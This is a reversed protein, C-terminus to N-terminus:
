GIEMIAQYVQDLTVGSGTGGAGLEIWSSGTYLVMYLSNSSKEAPDWTTGNALAMQGAQPNDPPATLINLSFTGNANFKIYGADNTFESLATPADATLQYVTLDPLGTLQNYDTISTLNSASVWTSDYQVYMNGSVSDWWLDGQESGTPASTAVTVSAGNTLLGTNDTLDSLDTPVSTSLAYVSLDPPTFTFM